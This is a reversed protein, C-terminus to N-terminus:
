AKAFPKAAPKAKSLGPGGFPKAGPKAGNKLAEAKADQEAKKAAEAEARMKPVGTDIEEDIQELTASDRGPLLARAVGKLAESVFTDSPVSFAQAKGYLTVLADAGLTDFRDLGEVTWDLEEGRAKGLLTLTSKIADRLLEGYARLVVHMQESDAEKSEATRGVAAANNDVGLAMQQVVRFIEDKLAKIADAMATLHQTPPALWEAKDEGGMIVAGGMLVPQFNDPDKIAFVPQSFCLQRMSWHAASSLRYHELQSSSIRNAVWLGDTVDLLILPVEGLGHKFTREPAIDREVDLVEVGDRVDAVYVEVVDRSMVRWTHRTVNREDAPDPRPRSEEHVIAWLLKGRADAEWDLVSERKVRCLRVDLGGNKEVDAKSDGVGYLEPFDLRWFAWRTILADVFCSRLFARLDTGHGDCDRELDAYWDPPETDATRKPKVPAAGEGDETEPAAKREGNPQAIGVLLPSTFQQAAFFDIITGAYPRYVSERIRQRFRDHPEKPMKVLFREARDVFRHGGEYLSRYDSWLEGRHKPHKALLRKIKV